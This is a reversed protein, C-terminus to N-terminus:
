QAGMAIVRSGALSPRSAPGRRRRIRAASPIVSHPVIPKTRPRLPRFRALVHEVSYENRALWAVFARLVRGHLNMTYNSLRGGARGSRHHAFRVHEGILHAVYSCICLLIFDALTPAEDTTVWRLNSALASRSNEITKPSAGKVTLAALCHDLATRLPLDRLDSMGLM